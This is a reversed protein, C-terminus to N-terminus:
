QGMLRWCWKHAWCDRVIAHGLLWYCDDSAWYDGAGNILGVTELLIMAWCGKVTMVPGTIELMMRPGVTELLILAWYGIVIMVPGTIELM